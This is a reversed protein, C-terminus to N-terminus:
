AGFWANSWQQKAYSASYQDDAVSILRVVFLMVLGDCGDTPFRSEM